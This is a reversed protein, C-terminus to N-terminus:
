LEGGNVSEIQFHCKRAWIGGFGRKKSDRASRGKLLGTTEFLDGRESYLKQGAREERKMDSRPLGSVQRKLGGGGWVNEVVQRKMRKGGGVSERECLTSIERKRNLCWGVKIREAPGECRKGNDGGSNRSEIKKEGSEEEAEFRIPWRHGKRRLSWDPPEDTKSDL